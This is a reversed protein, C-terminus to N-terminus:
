NCELAKSLKELNKYMIDEYTVNAEAEDATINGLPELFDLKVHADNAITRMAKDSIFNEFFITDAGHEKIQRFIRKMDEPTPNAEPSLGSLPEVHFNYQEALYGIANHNVIITDVSCNKLYRAYSKQLRQLMRLYREENQLYFGKYEPRLEILAETIKKTAIRMNSFDLWYHPDIKSHACQDDHHEHYDFEDSGLERLKVFQSIDLVKEQAFHMSDVWPELGAGSIIILSSKELNAMLKPTPEFSHPDTGFPLINVVKVSDEALHRVIDYIFFTSVSVVKKEVRKESAPTAKKFSIFLELIVFLLLALIFVIKFRGM